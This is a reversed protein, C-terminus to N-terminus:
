IDQKATKQYDKRDIQSIMNNSIQNLLQKRRAKGSITVPDPSQRIPEIRDQMPLTRKRLQNGYTRLVNRIQYTTIL